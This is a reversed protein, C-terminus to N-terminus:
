VGLDQNNQSILRYGMSFEGVGQCGLCWQFILKQPVEVAIGRGVVGSLIGADKLSSLENSLNQAKLALAEISHRVELGHIYLNELRTSVSQYPSTEEGFNRLVDDVYEIRKIYKKLHDLRVKTGGLILLFEGPILTAQRTTNM